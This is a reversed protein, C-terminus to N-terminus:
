CKLPFEMGQYESYSSAASVVASPGRSVDTEIMTVWLVHLFVTVVINGEPYPNNGLIHIDSLLRIYCLKLLLFFLFFFFM